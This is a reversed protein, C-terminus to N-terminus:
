EKATQKKDLLILKLSMSVLIVTHEKEFLACLTQKKKSKYQISLTKIIIENM